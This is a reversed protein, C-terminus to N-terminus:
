HNSVGANRTLAARANGLDVALQQQLEEPSSFRKVDRLRRVWWAKVQQGYLEGEQDFLHIELSRVDESFTPRPGLHMM